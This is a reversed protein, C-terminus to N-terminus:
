SYDRFSQQDCINAHQSLPTKSLSVFTLPLSIWVRANYFSAYNWSIRKAISDWTNSLCLRRLCCRVRQLSRATIPSIIVLKWVQMHAAFCCETIKFFLSRFTQKLKPSICTIIPRKNFHRHCRFIFSCSNRGLGGSMVRWQPSYHLTWM